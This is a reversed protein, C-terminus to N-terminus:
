FQDSLRIVPTVFPNIVRRDRDNLVDDLGREPLSEVPDQRVRFLM